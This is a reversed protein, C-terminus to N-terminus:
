AKVAEHFILSTDSNLLYSSIVRQWADINRWDRLRLTEPQDYFQHVWLPLIQKNDTDRLTEAMTILTAVDANSLTRGFDLVLDDRDAYWYRRLVGPESENEQLRMGPVQQAGWISNVKQLTLYESHMINAVQLFADTNTPDEILWRNYQYTADLYYILPDTITAFTYDVSPSGWSDSANAQFKVTAAATFNHDQLIAATIKTPTGYDIVINESAIGTSKWYTNRNRDILFEGGFNARCEFQWNDGLVFDDGPAGTFNITINTGLGDASLAIAPSTATLVGSSEWDGEPTDSTRWRITAQGVSVGASVSDVEIYYSLGFAGQFPGFRKMVASGSGRKKVGSIRGSAQSSLTIESVNQIKNTPMFRLQGYAM